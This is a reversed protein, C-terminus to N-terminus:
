AVGSLLGVIFAVPIVGDVRDFVGGHGPILNSSDKVGAKRKLWSEFFDGSQAAVALIIGIAAAGLSDESTAEWFDAWSTYGSTYHFTSVWAGLWLAAGIIGGVLGAWTKSPSIRPAIKPGGIGRGFFYAFVDTFIVAGLAAILYYSDAAILAYGAYGIYGVGFIVALLRNLPKQTIKFILACYEAFTVLVVLALFADLVRGGMWLATLAIALM